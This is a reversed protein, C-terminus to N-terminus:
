QRESGLLKHLINSQYGFGAFEEFFFEAPARLQDTMPLCPIVLKVTLGGFTNKEFAISGGHLDATHRALPLGLHEAGGVPEQSRTGLHSQREIAAPDAATNNDSVAIVASGGERALSLRVRKDASSNYMFGNVILNLVSIELMTFNAEAEIGDEIDCELELGAPTLAKVTCDASHRLQESLCCTKMATDRGAPDSNIFFTLNTLKPLADSIIGRLMESSSQLDYRPNRLMLEAIASVDSLSGSVANVCQRINGIGDSAFFLQKQEEEDFFRLLYGGISGKETMPVLEFTGAGMYRGVFTKTIPLSVPRGEFVLRAIDPLLTDNAKNRWMEVLHEDYFSVKTDSDKYLMKVADLLKM